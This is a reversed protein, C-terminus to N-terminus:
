APNDRRRLRAHQRARGQEEPTLAFWLSDMRERIADAQDDDHGADLRAHLEAHTALYRLLAPSMPEELQAVRARLRKLEAITWDAATEFGLRVTEGVM